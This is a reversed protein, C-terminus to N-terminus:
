IFRGHLYLAPCPDLSGCSRQCRSGQWAALRLDVFENGIKKGVILDDRANCVPIGGRTAFAGGSTAHENPGHLTARFFDLSVRLM